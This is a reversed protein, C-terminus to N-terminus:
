HMFKSLVGTNAFFLAEKNAYLDRLLPFKYHVGFTNCIQDSSSADIRLLQDGSLKVRGRAQQYEAFMNRGNECNAMPVLLNFSDAGGEMFYYVVVKYRELPITEYSTIDRKIGKMKALNTAHFEPTSVILQQAIRIGKAKNGSLYVNEFASKIIERNTQSLRSSTLLLSLDDMIDDPTSDSKGAYTIAGYADSTVVGERKPCQSGLNAGGFGGDCSSYGFKVTSWLGNLLNILRLDLAESEPSVLGANGIAGSPAYEPLFFSFVSLARYPGQGLIGVSQSGKFLPTSLPAFLTTDMSRLFSIVKVIPEKIQGHSPDADLSISRAEPDLLAAAVSRLAFLSTETLIKDNILLLISSIFYVFHNMIYKCLEWTEMIEQDLNDLILDM